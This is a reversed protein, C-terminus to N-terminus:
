PILIRDRYDLDQVKCIHVPCSGTDAAPVTTPYFVEGRTCFRGDAVYRDYLPLGPTRRSQYRLITAGERAITAHVEACSMGTPDHRSIAWANGAAICFSLTLLMKKM